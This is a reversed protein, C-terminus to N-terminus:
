QGAARPVKRRPLAFTPRRPVFLGYGLRSPHLQGSQRLFDEFVPSRRTMLRIMAAYELAESSACLREYDKSLRCNQMFWGLRREVIWQHPLVAFNEAVDCFSPM